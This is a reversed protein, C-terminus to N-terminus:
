FVTYSFATAEPYGADYGVANYIFGQGPSNPQINAYCSDYGRFAGPSTGPSGQQTRGAGKISGSIEALDGPAVYGFASVNSTSFATTTSDLSM